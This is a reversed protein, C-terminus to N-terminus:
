GLVFEVTNKHSGFLEVYAWSDIQQDGAAPFHGLPGKQYYLPGTRGDLPQFLRSKAGGRFMMWDPGIKTCMSRQHFPVPALTPLAIKALKIKVWQTQAVRIYIYIYAQMCAYKCPRRWVIKLPPASGINM